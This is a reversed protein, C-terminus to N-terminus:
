NGVLVVNSHCLVNPTGYMNKKEFPIHHDVIGFSVFKVFYEIFIILPHAM